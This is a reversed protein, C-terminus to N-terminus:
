GSVHHQPEQPRPTPPGNPNKTQPASAIFFPFPPQRRCTPLPRRGIKPLPRDTRARGGYRIRAASPVNTSTKSHFDAAAISAAWPLEATWAIHARNSSAHVYSDRSLRFSVFSM